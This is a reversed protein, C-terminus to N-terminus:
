VEVIRNMANIERPTVNKRRLFKEIKSKREEKAWDSALVLFCRLEPNISKQISLYALFNETVPENIPYVIIIGSEKHVERCIVVMDNM